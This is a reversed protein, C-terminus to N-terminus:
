RKSGKVPNHGPPTKDTGASQSPTPVQFGVGQQAKQSALYEPTLVHYNAAVHDLAVKDVAAKEVAGLSFYSKGFLERATQMGILFHMQAAMFKTLNSQYDDAM